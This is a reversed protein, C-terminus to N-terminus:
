QSKRIQQTLIQQQAPRLLIPGHMQLKRQATNTTRPVSGGKASSGQGQGKPEAEIHVLWGPETKMETRHTQEARHPSCELGESSNCESPGHCARVADRVEKRTKGRTEDISIM